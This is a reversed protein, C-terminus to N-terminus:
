FGVMASGGMGLVPLPHGTSGLRRTPITDGVRIRKKPIPPREVNGAEAVRHGLVAGGAAALGSKLFRLRRM